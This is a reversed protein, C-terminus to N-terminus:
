LFLLHQILRNMTCWEEEGRSDWEKRNKRDEM